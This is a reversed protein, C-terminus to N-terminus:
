IQIKNKKQFNGIRLRAKAKSEGMINKAVCIYNATDSVDAEIVQLWSTVEYESPGGRSLVSIHNNDSPLLREMYDKEIFWEIVPVPWGKAECSFAVSTGTSNVINEPATLIVPVIFMISCILMM